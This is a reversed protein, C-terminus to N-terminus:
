QAVAVEEPSADQPAGESTALVVGQPSVVGYTWHEEEQTQPNIWPKDTPIRKVDGPIDTGMIHSVMNITMNVPITCKPVNVGTVLGAANKRLVPTGCVVLVVFESQDSKRTRTEAGIVKM